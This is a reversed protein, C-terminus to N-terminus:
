GGAFDEKVYTDKFIMPMKMAKAGSINCWIGMISEFPKRNLQVRALAHTLGWQSLPLHKHTNSALGLEGHTALPRGGTTLPQEGSSHV